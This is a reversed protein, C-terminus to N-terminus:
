GLPGTVAPRLPMSWQGAQIQFVWTVTSAHHPLTFCPLTLDPRHHTPAASAGGVVVVVVVTGTPCSSTLYNVWAALRGLMLQSEPGPLTIHGESHPLSDSEDLWTWNLRPHRQPLGTNCPLQRSSSGIGAEATPSFGPGPLKLPRVSRGLGEDDTTCTRGQHLLRASDCPQSVPLSDEATCRM